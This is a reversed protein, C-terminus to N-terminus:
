SMMETIKTIESETESSGDSLDITDELINEKNESSVVMETDDVETSIEGTRSDDTTSIESTAEDSTSIETTAEDSTSQIEVSDIDTTNLATDITENLSTSIEATDGM